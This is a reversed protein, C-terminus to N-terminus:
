AGPCGCMGECAITALLGLAECDTVIPFDLPGTIWTRNAHISGKKNCGVLNIAIHREVRTSLCGTFSSLVGFALCFLVLTSRNVEVYIRADIPRDGDLLHLLMIGGCRSLLVCAAGVMENCDPRDM